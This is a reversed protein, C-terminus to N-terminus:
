NFLVGQLSGNSLTVNGAWGILQIEADQNIPQRPSGIPTMNRRAHPRLRLYKTNIAFTTSAPMGVGNGAFIVDVENGVAFFKLAKFGSGFTDNAEVRQLPTLSNTYFRYHNADMCLIDPFDSNRVLGLCLRLLYDSINSQSVAGGGDNTGDFKKNRWFSWTARNIGGVTGSTPATSIYAQLGQIQRGGDGTGDSLIGRAMENMLSTKLNALKRKALSLVQEKGYNVLDEFGSQTIAGAVQRIDYEAASFLQQPSIDITEYGSYWKITSNEAYELEELIRHGGGSLTEINGRSKMRMFLPAHLSVNDALEGTRSELTTAIIDTVSPNASPM